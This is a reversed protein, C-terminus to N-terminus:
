FSPVCMAKVLKGAPSAREFLLDRPDSADSPRHHSSPLL